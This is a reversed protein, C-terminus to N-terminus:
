VVSDDQAAIRQSQTRGKYFFCVCLFRDKRTLISAKEYWFQRKHQRMEKTLKDSQWLVGMKGKGTLIEGKKGLEERGEEGGAETYSSNKQEAWDWSHLSGVSFYQSYVDPSVGGGNRLRKACGSSNLSTFSPGAGTM